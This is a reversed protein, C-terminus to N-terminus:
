APRRLFSRLFAARARRIEGARLLHQGAERLWTPAHTRFFARSGAPYSDPLRRMKREVQEHSLLMVVHNRSNNAPHERYGLLPTEVMLLSTRNLVRLFCDFDECLRLSEDFLGTTMLDDRRILVASPFLFFGATHIDDAIRPLHSVEDACRERSLETYGLEPLQLASPVRVAGDRLRRFDCSIVGATPCLEHARWQLEIKRPDWIDDHDLLAVWPQTAARIGTNRAASVGGNPRQIVRVGYSAAIAASDDTSGDDVVIIEAVPRTQALVSELTQGIHRAGNRVPIVVSVPVPRRGDPNPHTYQHAPAVRRQPPQSSSM